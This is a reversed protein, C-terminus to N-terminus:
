DRRDEIKINTQKQSIKELGPGHVSHGEDGTEFRICEPDPLHYASFYAEELPIWRKKFQELSEPSERVSLRKLRTELSATVFVAAKALSRLSPLLSYSGELILIGGPKLEKPPLLKDAHCDYPRVIGARGGAFPELVEGLLREHDCNGGPVSLREPTKRSHPVVYDDTHVVVADLIMALREALTSKGSACPGDICVIGGDRTRETIEAILPLLPEFSRSLIRYSPHYAERYRESHSPLYTNDRLSLSLTRLKDGWPQGQAYQECARIVEERSDGPQDSQLMMAAIGSAGIGTRAAAPLSLRLYREGVTQYLWEEDQPVPRSDPDEPGAANETEIRRIVTERDAMLHGPGLIGQFLFKLMDEPQTLPHRIREKDLDAFLSNQEIENM